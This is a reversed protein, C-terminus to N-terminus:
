KGEPINEEDVVVFVETSESTAPPLQSLAQPKYEPYTQPQDVQSQEGGSGSSDDTESDNLHIIRKVEDAYSKYGAREFIKILKRYTAKSGNRTKWTYLAERRYPFLLNDLTFIPLLPSVIVHLFNSM